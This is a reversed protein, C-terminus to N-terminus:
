VKEGIAFIQENSIEFDFPKRKDTFELTFGADRFFGAIEEQFLAYLL